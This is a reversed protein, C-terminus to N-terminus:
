PKQRENWTKDIVTLSRQAQNGDDAMTCAGSDPLKGSPVVDLAKVSIHLPQELMWVAQTAVEDAELPTFGQMFEDYQKDDHQVRQRHFHTAVVGPRLALVRINSGQLENRLANTFGEQCAKNAHYVAEGPFPPAELATTSTVNLVTGAKKKMFSANLVAHTTFM